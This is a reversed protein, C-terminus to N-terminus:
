ATSQRVIACLERSPHKPIRVMVILGFVSCGSSGAVPARRRPLDMRDGRDPNYGAGLSVDMDARGRLGPGVGAQKLWRNEREVRDLRRALSEMTPETMAEKGKKLSPSGAESIM